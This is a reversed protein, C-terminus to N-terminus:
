PLAYMGDYHGCQSFSAHPNDWIDQDTRIHVKLIFADGLNITHGHNVKGVYVIDDLARNRSRKKLFSHNSELYLTEVKDMNPSWAKADRASMLKDRKPEFVARRRLGSTSHSLVFGM